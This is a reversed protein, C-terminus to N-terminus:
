MNLQAQCWLVWSEFGLVLFFLQYTKLFYYPVTIIKFHNQEFEVANTGCKDENRRSSIAYDYEKKGTVVDMEGFKGCKNTDALFHRCDCCKKNTSHLIVSEGLALFHLLYLMNMKKDRRVIVIGHRM